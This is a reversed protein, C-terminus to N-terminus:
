MRDDSECAVHHSVRGDADIETRVRHVDCLDTNWYSQSRSRGSLAVAVTYEGADFDDSFGWGEGPDLTFSRELVTTEASNTMTVRVDYARDHANQATVDLHHLEPAGPRVSDLCGALGVAAATATGSLVTRRNV